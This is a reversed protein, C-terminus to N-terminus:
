DKNKLSERQAGSKLLRMLVTDKSPLFWKGSNHLIKGEGDILVYYPKIKLKGFSEHHLRDKVTDGSSKITKWKHPKENYVGSIFDDMEGVVILNVPLANNRKLFAISAQEDMETAYIFNYRGQLTAAISDIDNVTQVGTFEFTTTDWFCIVSNKAAINIEPHNSKLNETLSKYGDKYDIKKFFHLMKKADEKKKWKMFKSFYYINFGMSVM